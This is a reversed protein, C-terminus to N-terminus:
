KKFALTVGDGIVLMSVDVRDDEHIKTTLARIACTSPDTVEPDLVKLGWLVQPRVSVSM